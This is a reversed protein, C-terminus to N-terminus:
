IAIFTQLCKYHPPFHSSTTFHNSPPSALDSNILMGIQTNLPHSNSLQASSIHAAMVPSVPLNDILHSIWLSAITQHYQGGTIPMEVMWATGPVLYNCRLHDMVNALTLRTSGLFISFSFFILSHFKLAPFIVRIVGKISM